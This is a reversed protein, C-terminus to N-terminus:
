DAQESRLLKMKARWPAGDFGFNAARHTGPV